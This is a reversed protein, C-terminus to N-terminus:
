RKTNFPLLNGPATDFNRKERCSGHAAPCTRDAGSVAGIVSELLLIFLPNEPNCLYLQAHFTKDLELFEESPAAEMERLIVEFRIQQERSLGRELLDLCVAKEMM